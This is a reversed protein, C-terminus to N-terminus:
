PLKVNDVKAPGINAQSPQSQSTTPTITLPVSGATGQHIHSNYNVIHDNFRQLLNDFADKLPDFRVANHRNGGLEITGDNLLKVISKFDKGDKDMSYLYTEGDDPNSSVNVVGVIYEDGTNTVVSISPKGKPIRSDVGFSSSMTVDIVDDKGYRVCQVIQHKMDDIKTLVTQLVNSM